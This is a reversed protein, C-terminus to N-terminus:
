DDDQDIEYTIVGDEVHIEVQISSPGEFVVKAEDEKQEEITATFGPEPEITLPYILATGDTTAVITGGATRITETGAPDPPVTPSPGATPSPTATAEDDPSPSPSPSPEATPTSAGSVPAATATPVAEIAPPVADGEPSPSATAAATASPPPMEDIDSTPEAEATGDAVVTVQEPSPNSGPWVTVVGALVVLCAALGAAQQLRRVRRARRMGPRIAELVEAAPEDGADVDRAAARLLEELRHDDM